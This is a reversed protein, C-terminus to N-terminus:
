YVQLNGRYVSFPYGKPYHDPYYPPVDADYLRYQLRDPDNIVGEGNDRIYFLFCKWNISETGGTILGGFFLENSEKGEKVWTVHGKFTVDEYIGIGKFNVVGTTDKNVKVNFTVYFDQAPRNKGCGEDDGDDHQESDMHGDDCGVWNAYFGGTAQVSNRPNAKIIDSLLVSDSNSVANYNTNTTDCGILIVLGVALLLRYKKISKM